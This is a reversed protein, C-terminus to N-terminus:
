EEPRYVVMDAIRDTPEYHAEIAGLMEGTWRDRKIDRAFPPEWMMVVAYEEDRISEVARDQEWSGDRSLQTMEFPQFRIRKGNLPLLGM